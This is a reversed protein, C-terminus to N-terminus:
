SAYRFSIQTRIHNCFWGITYKIQMRIAIRSIGQETELLDFDAEIHLLEKLTRIDKDKLLIKVNQESCMAIKELAVTQKDREIFQKELGKKDKHRLILALLLSAIFSLFSYSIYKDM